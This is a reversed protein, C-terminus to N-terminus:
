HSRNFLIYKSCLRQHETSDLTRSVKLVLVLLEFGVVSSKKLVERFVGFYATQISQAIM